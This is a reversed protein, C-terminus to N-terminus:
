DPEATTAPRHVTCIMESGRRAKRNIAISAGIMEARYHMIRMGLGTQGDRPQRPETGDNRVALTIREPASSLEIEINRARGHKVANTAAEQALRYLNTSVSNDDVLVAESCKFRCKVKFMDSVSSSLQDLASMLGSPEAPVPHLGRALSRLQNLTVDLLNTIKTAAAANASPRRALKKRLSDTLYWLGALQQGLGDHLDQAIRRREREGSQLVEEELRKRETIDTVIAGIAFVNGKADLLPFKSVINTHPGDDHLSAEEFQVPARSEVVKRDHARFVVAQQPPFLEDDTRGILSKLPRHLAQEFRRNAHLYRGSTDKLFILAPSYDMLAQLTANAATLEATRERVRTELQNRAARLEDEARRRATIDRSNLVVGRVAENQLLNRAIIEMICWRGDHCRVRLEASRTAGSKALCEEFLRRALPVDDPHLFEFASRNVMDEPRHGLVGTVNPSEYTIVGDATLVTITEAANEILSRFRRESAIVEEAQTASGNERAPNGATSKRLSLRKM